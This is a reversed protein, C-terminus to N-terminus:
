ADDKRVYAGSGHKECFRELARTNFSMLETVKAITSVSMQHQREELQKVRETLHTRDEDCRKQIDVERKKASEDNRVDRKYFYIIAIVLVLFAIGSQALQNLLDAPM